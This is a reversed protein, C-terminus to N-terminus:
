LGIRKWKRPKSFRPKLNKLDDDISKVILTIKKRDSKSKDQVLEDALSIANKEAPILRTDGRGDLNKLM